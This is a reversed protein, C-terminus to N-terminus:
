NSNFKLFIIKLFALVRTVFFLLSYRRPAKFYITTAALILKISNLIIYTKSVKQTSLSDTRIRRYYVANRSTFEYKDNRRSIAFMFLSDEGKSFRRDFRFDGIMERTILKCVPVSFYSRIKLISLKKNFNKEYVNTIYYSTTNFINETFEMIYSLPIVDNQAVDYLGQLYNESVIDDDDIFALYKGNSQEIGINRANSVGSIDTYLLKYHFSCKMLCNNIFASIFFTKSLILSIKKGQM